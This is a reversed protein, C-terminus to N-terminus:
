GQCLFLFLKFNHELAFVFDVLRAGLQSYAVPFIMGFNPYYDTLKVVSSSSTSAIMANSISKPLTPFSKENKSKSNRGSSRQSIQSSPGSSPQSAKPVRIETTNPMKGNSQQLNLPNNDENECIEAHSDTRSRALPFIEENDPVDVANTNTFEGHELEVESESEELLQTRTQENQDNEKKEESDSHNDKESALIQLVAKEEPILLDSEDSVQKYNTRFRSSVTAVRNQNQKQNEKIFEQDNEDDADDGDGDGDGDGDEGRDLPDDIEKEADDDDDDDVYSKNVSITSFIDKILDEIKKCVMYGNGCIFHNTFLKKQDEENFNSAM